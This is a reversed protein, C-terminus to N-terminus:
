FRLRPTDNFAARSDAALDVGLFSTPGATSHVIRVAIRDPDVYETWHEDAHVGSTRAIGRVEAHRSTDSRLPLAILYRASSDALACGTVADASVFERM